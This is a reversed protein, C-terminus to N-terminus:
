VTTRCLNNPNIGNIGVHDLKGLLGRRARIRRHCVVSGDGLKFGLTIRPNAALATLAGHPHREPHEALSYHEAGHRQIFEACPHTAIFAALARLSVIRRVLAVRGPKNSAKLHGPGARRWATLSAVTPEDLYLPGRLQARGLGLKVRKPCSCLRVNAWM